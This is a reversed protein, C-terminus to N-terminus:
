VVGGRPLQRKRAMYQNVIETLIGFVEKELCSVVSVSPDSFGAEGEAVAHFEIQALIRKPRALREDTIFVDWRGLDQNWMVEVRYGEVTNPM